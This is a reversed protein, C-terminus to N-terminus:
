RYDCNRPPGCVRFPICPRAMAWCRLSVSGGTEGARHRSGRAIFARARRQQLHLLHGAAPHAPLRADARTFQASRGRHDFGTRAARGADAAVPSRHASRDAASSDRAQPGSARGACCQPRGSEIRALSERIGGVLSDGTLAAAAMAPDDTLQHVSPGAPVYPGAGPAHYTFLPAGIALLLDHGALRKHIEERFAPLFGAFQPHDEPFSARGILPSAWVLAGHLEALAVLEDWAGDRDVAAGVVFVPRQQRGLQRALAALGAADARQAAIVSHPALEEAQEDWDDSPISVFVPGCPPQM